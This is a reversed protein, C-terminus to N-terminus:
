PNRLLDHTGIKRLVYLDDAIQLTFRYSTTVRCERIDRPDQVKKFHLSPHRPDSLLLELHKDTLKQIDRPLKRYDRVFTRTFLLKM